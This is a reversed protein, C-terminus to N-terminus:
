WLGAQRAEALRMDRRAMSVAQAEPERWDGGSIRPLAIQIFSFRVSCGAPKCVPRTFRSVIDTGSDSRLSSFPMTIRERTFAQAGGM